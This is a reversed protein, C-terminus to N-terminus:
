ELLFLLSIRSPKETERGCRLWRHPFLHERDRWTRDQRHGGSCAQRRQRKQGSADGGGRRVLRPRWRGGPPGTGPQGSRRPRARVVLRNAVWADRSTFIFLPKEIAGKDVIIAGVDLWINLHLLLTGPLVVAIRRHM